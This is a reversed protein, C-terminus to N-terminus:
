KIKMAELIREMAVVYAGTRLMVNRDTASKLVGSLATEM